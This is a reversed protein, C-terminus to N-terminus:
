IAGRLCRVFWSVVRLTVRVRQPLPDKRGNSRSSTTRRPYRGYATADNRHSQAFRVQGDLWHHCEHRILM